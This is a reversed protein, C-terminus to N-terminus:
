TYGSYTEGPRTCDAVVVEQVVWVKPDRGDGPGFDVQWPPVHTLADGSNSRSSAEGPSELKVESMAESDTVM